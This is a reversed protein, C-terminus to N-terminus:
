YPSGTVRSMTAPRHAVQQVYKRLFASAPTPALRWRPASCDTDLTAASEFNSVPADGGRVAGLNVSAAEENGQRQMTAALHGRGAVRLSSDLSCGAVIPLIAESHSRTDFMGSTYAGTNLCDSIRSRGM